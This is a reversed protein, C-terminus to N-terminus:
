ENDFDGRNLRDNIIERLSFATVPNTTANLQAFLEALTLRM